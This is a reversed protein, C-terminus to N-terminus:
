CRWVLVRVAQRRSEGDALEGSPQPTALRTSLRLDADTSLRASDGVGLVVGDLQAEGDVVLVFAPATVRRPGAVVLPRPDDDGPVFWAQVFRVPGDSENREDHEVGAGTRLLYSGPGRRESGDPGVHTLEGTIVTTAIDIGAHRHRGFGAGPELVFENCALMRGFSINGPDYFEDYSFCYSGTWGDRQTVFRASARQVPVTMDDESVLAPPITGTRRTAATAVSRSSGTATGPCAALGFRTTVTFYEAGAPTVVPLEAM